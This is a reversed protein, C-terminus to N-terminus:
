HFFGLIFGFGSQYPSITCIMMTFFLTNVLAGAIINGSKQYILTSFFGNMLFLPIAFPIFNGFYFFSGMIFSFIMLFIFWYVFTFGFISVSVKVLAIFDKKFKNQFVGHFLLGYIMFIIFNIFLFIPVWPVKIISPIMGLYNLGGSVYIIITLLIALIAGLLFQRLINNRSTKFPKMIIEKLGVKRKKGIRWLLILIAFAQGFLLASIFGAIALFLILLIPVFIIIGPLGLLLSSALIKGELNITSNDELELKFIEEERSKLILQSLPDIILVFFGFGGLLQLSLFFLRTHTIFVEDVPRVDPFASAIFHRAERIFDPDWNGLVHNCLDDLYIKSANGEQFSGYLKNVDLNSVPIGTYDSLGEKLDEPTILEDYRGLLMLINLPATSNGKRIKEPFSTGAGIFCKFDTSKNVVQSGVGGMSYGLYTLNNPDIDPRSNLYSIIADIDNTLLDWRHEGTSQGHGRFDFPVAVFGAAAFEIAYDKLMEKNSMVGHGLIIAKKNLGGSKPEFVNFSITVGNTTQVTQNYTAKIGIPIIFILVTGIVFIALFATLLIIRKKTLDFRKM